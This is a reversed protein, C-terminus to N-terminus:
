KRTKRTKKKSKKKIEEVPKPSSPTCSDKVNPNPNSAQKGVVQLQMQILNHILLAQQQVIEKLHSQEQMQQELAEVKQSQEQLMDKIKAIESQFNSRKQKGFYDTQTVGFGLGRVRGPREIGHLARALIDDHKPAEDQSFSQSLADCEKWVRQVNENDIQGEKNVHGEKWLIHRSLTVIQSGQQAILQQELDAYAVRGRRYPYLPDLARQRNEESLKKFSKDKRRGIFADWDEQKILHAYRAPPHEIIKGNADRLYKATLVTRFSRLQRSATGLVYKKRSADINFSSEIEEWVAEKNSRPVARWTNYSIPVERRTVVGIYSVFRSRGPNIPQGKANWAINLKRGWSKAHIVEKMITLGRTNKEKCVVIGDYHSVNGNYPADDDDHSANENYLADDDHSSAM